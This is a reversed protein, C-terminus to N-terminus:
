KHEVQKRYLEQDKADLDIISARCNEYSLCIREPDTQGNVLKRLLLLSPKIYQELCEEDSCAKWFASYFSLQYRKKQSLVVCSFFLEKRFPGLPNLYRGGLSTLISDKEYFQAKPASFIIEYGGRGLGPLHVFDIFSIIQEDSMM